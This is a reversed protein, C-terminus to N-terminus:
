VFALLYALLCYDHSAAISLELPGAAVVLLRQKNEKVHGKGGHRDDCEAGDQGFGEAENGRENVFHGVREHAPAGAPLDLGNPHKVVLAADRLVPATPATEDYRGTVHTAGQKGHNKYDQRPSSPRGGKRCHAERHCQQRGEAVRGIPGHHIQIQSVGNHHHRKNDNLPKPVRRNQLKHNQEKPDKHANNCNRINMGIRNYSGNFPTIRVCAVRFYTRAAHWPTNTRLPNHQCYEELDTTDKYGHHFHAVFAIIQSPELAQVLGNSQVKIEITYVEKSAKITKPV